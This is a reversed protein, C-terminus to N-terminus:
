HSSPASQVRLNVEIELVYTLLLSFFQLPFDLKEEREKSLTFVFFLSM